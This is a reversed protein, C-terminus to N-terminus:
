NWNSNLWPARHRFVCTYVSRGANAHGQKSLLDATKILLHQKCPLLCNPASKGAAAAQGGSLGSLWLRLAHCALWCICVPGFFVLITGQRVPVYLQIVCNRCLSRWNINFFFFIQPLVMNCLESGTFSSATLVQLCVPGKGRRATRQPTKWLPVSQGWHGAPATLSSHTTTPPRISPCLTSDQFVCVWLAENYDLFHRLLM